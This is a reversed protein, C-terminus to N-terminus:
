ESPRRMPRCAPQVSLTGCSRSTLGREVARRGTSECCLNATMGAIVLHTMGLRQLHEPLDTEFVDSEKHSLLVIKGALAKTGYGAHLILGHEVPHLGPQRFSRLNEPPAALRQLM